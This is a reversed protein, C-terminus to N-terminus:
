SAEVALVVVDAQLRLVRRHLGDARAVHLDEAAHHAEQSRHSGHGRQGGVTMARNLAAEEIGVLLLLADHVTGAARREVVEDGRGPRRESCVWAAAQRTQPVSSM